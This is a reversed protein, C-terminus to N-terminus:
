GTLDARPIHLTAAINVLEAFSRAQMKRMIRGRHAKVTIESIGLEDGVERNLLGTVVLSMVGRERYSLAEYRERLTKIEALAAHMARSRDLAVRLAELLVEDSCPKTLFETAGGKMAQVTIPVDSHATFFFIAIDPREAHVRQQLGLGNLGPLMVELVLCSPCFRGPHSFFEEASAFLLPQWEAKLILAELSERISIDDDVVYVIPTSDAKPPLATVPRKEHNRQMTQNCRTPMAM